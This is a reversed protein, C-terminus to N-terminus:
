HFSRRRPRALIGAGAVFILGGAAVAARYGALEAMAGLILPGLIMGADLAIRYAALHIPPLPTGARDALVTAPIMWVSFGGGVLVLGAAFVAPRSGAALLLGGGLVVVAGALFLPERRVRDIVLSLLALGAVEAVYAAAMGLGIATTTLEYRDHGLLPVVTAFLGSWTLGLALTGAYVPGLGRFAAASVSPGPVQAPAARRGATAGIPRGFVYCLLMVLGAAVFVPRWGAAQALVAALSGGVALSLIATGEFANALRGRWPAPASELLEAFVALFTASAGIGMVVRALLFLPFTPALGCGVSGLILGGLGIFVVRRTGWRVRLQSAPYSGALRGIAYLTNVLGAEVASLAWQDAVLPLLPPLMGVTFATLVDLAFLPGLPAFTQALTPRSAPDPRDFVAPPVVRAPQRPWAPDPPRDDPPAAESV